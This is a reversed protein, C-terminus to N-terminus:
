GEGELVQTFTCKNEIDTLGNRNQLLTCKQVQKLNWVYATDHSKSKTYSVESLIIIVVYMWTAGCPM